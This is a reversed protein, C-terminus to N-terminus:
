EIKHQEDGVVVNLTEGKMITDLIQEVSERAEPPILAIKEMIAPMVLVDSEIERRIEDRVAQPFCEMTKLDNLIWNVKNRYATFSRFGQAATGYENIFSTIYYEAIKLQLITNM